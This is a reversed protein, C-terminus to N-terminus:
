WRFWRTRCEVLSTPRFGFGIACELPAEVLIEWIPEHGRGGHAKEILM